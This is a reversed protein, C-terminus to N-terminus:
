PGEAHRDALRLCIRLPQGLPEAAVVRPGSVLDEIEADEPVGRILAQLQHLAAHEVEVRVDDDDAERHVVGLHGAIAVLVDHGRTRARCEAPQRSRKARRRLVEFGVVQELVGREHQPKPDHRDTIGQRIVFLAGARDIVVPEFRPRAHRRVIEGRVDTLHRPEGSVAARRDHQEVVLQPLPTIPDLIM